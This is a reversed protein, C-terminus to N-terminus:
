FCESKDFESLALLIENKLLGSGGGYHQIIIIKSNIKKVRERIIQESVDEIGCSLLLIDFHLLNANTFAENEDIFGIASWGDNENLLRVVIDLIPKNKGFIIFNLKKM